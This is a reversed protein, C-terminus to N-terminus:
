NHPKCHRKIKGVLAVDISCHYYRSIFKIMEATTDAPDRM